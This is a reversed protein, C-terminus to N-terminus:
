YYTSVFGKDGVLDTLTSKKPNRENESEIWDKKRKDYIEEATTPESYDGAYKSDKLAKQYEENRERTVEFGRLVIRIDEIDQEKFIINTSCTGLDTVGGTNKGDKIYEEWYHPVVGGDSNKERKWAPMRALIAECAKPM